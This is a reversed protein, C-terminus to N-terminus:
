VIWLEVDIIPHIFKIGINMLTKEKKWGWFAIHLGNKSFM